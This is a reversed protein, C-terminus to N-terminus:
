TTSRWRGRPFCRRRLALAARRLVCGCASQVSRQEVACCAAGCRAMESEDPFTTHVKRRGGTVLSTSTGGRRLMKTRVGCGGGRRADALAWPASARRVLRPVSCRATATYHLAHPPRPPLTRPNPACTLDVGSAADQGRQSVCASHQLASPMLQASEEGHGDGAQQQSPRRCAASAARLAVGRRADACRRQPKATLQAASWSGRERQVPARGARSRLAMTSAGTVLRQRYALACWARTSRHPSTVVVADSDVLRMASRRQRVRASAAGRLAAALLSRARRCWAM